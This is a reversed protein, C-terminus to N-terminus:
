SKRERERAHELMTRLKGMDEPKIVRKKRMVSASSFPNEQSSSNMITKAVLIQVDAEIAMALADSPRADVKILGGPTEINISAFFTNNKIRDIIINVMKGGMKEIIRHMLVHTLPRPTKVKNMALSIAHAETDGIWIPLVRNTKRDQLVVIPNLSTQDEVLAIVDVSSPKQEPM